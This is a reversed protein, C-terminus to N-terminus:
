SYYINSNLLEEFDCSASVRACFSKLYNILKIINNIYCERSVNNVIELETCYKWNCSSSSNSKVSLNCWSASTDHMGSRIGGIYAYIRGFLWDKGLDTDIYLKCDSEFDM